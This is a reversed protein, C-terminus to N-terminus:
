YSTGTKRHHVASLASAALVKGGCVKSYVVYHDGAAMSSQVCGCKLAQGAAAPLMSSGLLPAGGSRLGPIGCRGEAGQLREGREGTPLVMVRLLAVTTCAALLM